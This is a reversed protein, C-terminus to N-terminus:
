EPDVWPGCRLNSDKYEPSPMVDLVYCYRLKGTKTDLIFVINGEDLFSKGAVISYRGEDAAVVGGITMLFAVLVAIHKMM